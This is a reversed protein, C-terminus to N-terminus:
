RRSDAARGLGALYRLLDALEDETLTTSIGAPMISGAETNSVITSKAIRRVDQSLAERLQLRDDTEALPYGSVVSGDTLVVLRSMYGERIQRNPYLVSESLLEVGRGAGILSLDPGADSGVGSARHCTTCGARKSEFLRKGREADGRELAAAAVRRVRDGDYARTSLDSGSAEEIVALLPGALRGASGLAQRLHQEAGRELKVRGLAAALSEDGTSRALFPAILVAADEESEVSSLSEAALSAGRSLDIAAVSAIAARRVAASSTTSLLSEIRPLAAREGYHESARLAAVTLEEPAKEDDLIDAVRGRLGDVGWAGALQIAAACVSVSNAELAPRLIAALEGEPRKAQLTAARELAAMVALNPLAREAVFSLDGADGVEVLLALLRERAAEELSADAALDRVFRSVDRTGATELVFRLREVQGDFRLEGRSLAPMWHPELAHVAQALAYELFRDMPLDIVRTAIEIARADEIYSCAVVAELRVRPHEDHVREALLALPDELRSAWNGIARTGYARVRGDVARLLRALRDPRVVEHAEYIGFARLHWREKDPDKEDLRDIWADTAAIVEATPLDFLRRKANRRVLREPSRLLELLEALTRSRVATPNVLPRGKATVRWIRGHTKDRRPDRYSAQYHGIIENYWDCIYIAGDPGVRVNVPRFDRRSSTILDPLVRMTFGSGDDVIEHMQVSNSLFGGWVAAGQVAEPLHATGILEIGTNRRDPVAMAWYPRPNATPVMGPVTWFGGSYAASNHFIQGWDDFEVGQCNLGATSLNFFGHLRATRPRYRWVGAKHLRSIGWPTEVHSYVHHGQTFWLAGSPGRALGNVLQHSDATGFGSLVVSRTDARGDEDTDVLHVLETGETLWVGGSGFEIGMPLSLGEAFRHFREARGDRDRDECVLVYDNPAEGPQPHPYSPACLVWLRNSDDWRMQLPNVVGDSESAFLGVEYGDAVQFSALQKEVSHGAPDQSSPLAEPEPLPAFRPPAEGNAIARSMATIRADAMALLDRYKELEVRLAPHDQWAKGFPQSTRDGFAFTWNMPRWNDFWHANKAVIAARLTEFHPTEERPTVGLQRAIERAVRPQASPLLHVGNATLAGSLTGDSVATFLDVLLLERRRAIDGIAEVYRLMDENRESLDPVHLGVPTEFPRPTILVIRATSTEFQEILAEYAAVFDALGPAGALCEMQGFQALVVDAELAALQDAQSGFNLDRWQEHVTDGEWALNRFSPAASAFHLSLLTELTADRRSRVLDTQGTFVIRDGPDLLFRGDPFPGLPRTEPSSAKGFRRVSPTLLMPRKAFSRGPEVLAQIESPDLARRHFWIEDIEGRFLQAGEIRGICLKVDPNDLNEPLVTGTASPYGNVWLTVGGPRRRMTVAIHTWEGPVIAGPRTQVTGNSHNSPDVTEIRVVGNADPMDFYWGHIWNYRGLCFFGAQRLDHARVWAAISLEGDAVNMTPDRPVEVWDDGDLSLAKGFPSDVFQADGRLEGLLAKPQSSRVDGDLAWCAILGERLRSADARVGGELRAAEDAELERIEIDRYRVIAKCGGHIQLAIIGRRVVSADEETYNVTRVGNLFLQIRAGVAVIRYDNWDDVRVLRRILEPAADTLMRRRRSEDYLYGDYGAGLDAQYGIVEHHGPIRRSRFQVGGNVFGETGLLKYRLRLEFNEYERTTALFENRPSTEELSGAVLASEEISWTGQIDGEWGDFTRGDFLPTFTPAASEPAPTEPSQAGTSPAKPVKPSLPETVVGCKAFAWGALATGAHTLYHKSDKTPSPTFWRGSARQNERLWRLGRRIRPDKADIGAARLVVIAFATGYGDSTTLSQAADDQREHDEWRDLLAAVAWGGDDLQTSSLEALIKSRTAADILGEVLTSAWAVMARHHLTPAAHEKLYRRIGALMKTATESRQFSEPTAGIGLAAFTVGYHDDSEMPPWGCKLWNWGGDPRQLAAMREFATRTADDLEHPKTGLARARDNWALTTAAVVVEADWRPGKTKWREEVITEIYARVSRPEPVIPTLASRLMVHAFNTHCTGCKRREQWDIAARDLYEAAKQLSFSAALPEDDTIPPIEDGHIRGSCIAALGLLSAFFRRILISTGTTM